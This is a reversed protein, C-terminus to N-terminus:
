PGARESSVVCRKAGVDLTVITPFGERAAFVTTVEADALVRDVTFGRRLLSAQLADAAAATHPRSLEYELTFVVSGPGSERKWGTRHAQAYVETLAATVARDLDAVAADDIDGATGASTPSTTPSTTPDTTPQSTTTDDDPRCDRGRTSACAVLSLLLLTHLPSSRRFSKPAAFM